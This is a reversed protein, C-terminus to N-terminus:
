KDCNRDLVIGIPRTFAAGAATAWQSSIHLGCRFNLLQAQRQRDLAPATSCVQFVIYMNHINIHYMHTYIHLFKSETFILKKKKVFINYYSISEDVSM